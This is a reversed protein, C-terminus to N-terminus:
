IAELIKKSWIFVQKSVDSQIAHKAPLTKRTLYYYHGTQLRTKNESALFYLADASHNVQKLMRNIILKKFLRYLWGNNLGIESQVAGPHIANISINKKELIQALEWVTHLQASKSAGYSRLGTYFRNQFHPDNLKFGSFRHGESNVQIIRGQSQELLPVLTETILLSALHNVTLALEIGHKTLIRKTSYVGANNILVDLKTEKALISALGAKVSHLDSFDAVYYRVEIPYSQTLTEQLAKAKIENRVFLILNANGRAFRYATALGIGSTAGTILVWKGNLLRNTQHPRKNGLTLFEYQKPLAMAILWFLNEYVV